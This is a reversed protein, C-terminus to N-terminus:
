KRASKRGSSLSCLCTKRPSSLLSRSITIFVKNFKSSTRIPFINTEDEKKALVHIEGEPQDTFKYLFSSSWDKGM